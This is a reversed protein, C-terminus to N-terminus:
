RMSRGHRDRIRREQRDANSRDILTGQRMAQRQARGIRLRRDLGYGAIQGAQSEADAQAVEEPRAIHLRLRVGIKDFPALLREARGRAAAEVLSPAGHIDIQTRNAHRKGLEPLDGFRVAEGRNDVGRVRVPRFRPVEITSAAM